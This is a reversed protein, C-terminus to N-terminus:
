RIERETYFGGNADSSSQCSERAAVLESSFHFILSACM